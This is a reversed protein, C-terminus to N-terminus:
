ARPSSVISMAIIPAVLWIFKANPDLFIQRTMPALQATSDAPLFSLVVSTLLGVHLVSFMVVQWWSGPAEAAGLTRMLGSRSLLFFLILFIGFFSTIRLAFWNNLGLDASLNKLFPAGNVVALAMYIGVLMIIIRDRGLSFGYLFAALVAFMAIFLDWSPVAWNIQTIIHSIDISNTM